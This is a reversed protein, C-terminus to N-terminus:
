GFSISFAQQFGMIDERGDTLIHPRSGVVKGRLMLQVTANEEVPPTLMSYILKNRLTIVKGEGGVTMNVKDTDLEAFSPQYVAPTELALEKGLVELQGALEATLNQDLIHQLDLFLQLHLVEEKEAPAETVNAVGRVGRVRVIVEQRSLTTNETMTGFFVLSPLRGKITAPVFYAEADEPPTDGGTDLFKTLDIEYDQSRTIRESTAYVARGEGDEVLRFLYETGDQLDLSVLEQDSELTLTTTTSGDTYTITTGDESKMVSPESAFTVGFVDELITRLQPSHEGPVLDWDFLFRGGEPAGERGGTGGGSDFTSFYNFGLAVASLIMIGGVFFAFMKDSTTHSRKPDEHEEVMELAIEESRKIKRKRVM